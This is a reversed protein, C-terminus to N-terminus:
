WVLVGIPKQYLRLNFRLDTIWSDSVKSTSNVSVWLIYKKKKNKGNFNKERSVKPM